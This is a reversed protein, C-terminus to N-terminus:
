HKAVGILNDYFQKFLFTPGKERNGYRSLARSSTNIADESAQEKGPLRRNTNKLGGPGLRSEIHGGAPSSAM